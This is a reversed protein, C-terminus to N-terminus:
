RDTRIKDYAAKRCKDSCYKATKSRKNPKGCHPCKRVVIDELDIGLEKALKIDEIRRRCKLRTRDDKTQRNANRQAIVKAETETHIVYGPTQQKKNM